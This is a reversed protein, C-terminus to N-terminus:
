RSLLFNAIQKAFLDFDDLRNNLNDAIKQYDIDLYDHVLINRIGAIGSFLETFKKDLVGKDGLIEIARKATEPTPFRESVIIIECIDICAEAALQLFRTAKAQKDVDEQLVQATVGKLTKLIAVYEKLKELRINIKDKTDVGKNM